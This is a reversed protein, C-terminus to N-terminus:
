YSVRRKPCSPFYVGTCLYMCVSICPCVCVCVCVSVCLYMCTHFCFCLNIPRSKVHLVNVIVCMCKPVFFCLCVCVRACVFM